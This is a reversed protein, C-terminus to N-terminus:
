PWRRPPHRRDRLPGGSTICRGRHTAYGRAQCTLNVPFITQEKLFIVNGDISTRHVTSCLSSCCSASPRARAAAPDTGVASTCIMAAASARTTTTTAAAAACVSRSLSPAPQVFEPTTGAPSAGAWVAPSSPGIIKVYRNRWVLSHM